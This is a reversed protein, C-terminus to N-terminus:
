ETKRPPNQGTEGGRTAGHFGRWGEREEMVGVPVWWKRAGGPSDASVQWGTSGARMAFLTGEM